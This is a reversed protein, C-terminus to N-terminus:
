KRAATEVKIQPPKLQSEVQQLARKLSQIEDGFTETVKIKSEFLETQEKLQGLQMNM